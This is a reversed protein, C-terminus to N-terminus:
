RAPQAQAAASRNGAGAVYHYNFRGEPAVDGSLYCDMIDGPKQLNDWWKFDLAFDERSELGLTARPVALMLENGEVNLHVKGVPQWKWGGGNKELSSQRGTVTRNIIFDYGEWGTKADSDADILLLMWNADGSDTIAERTKVYFYVNNADRTVKMTMLDNRGSKNVYHAAGSGFDRQDNDFLHDGFDPRIQQWQAFGGSLDITQPASAKPAPSMGKYRRVNGVLQYYYNDKHLGTVPEIDRSYEQDFQDVFVIPRGPRSFKGATWENWGTVMVFPPNLDLARNWQEQFNLGREVASPSVDKTADHFSRGRANGESMNTVRGDSARLNQAVAVNVQEAKNPDADYSYVQPYTSEWHWENHTNVLSFPWHAKRLTFFENLDRSAENPDCIMLPKGNWQFWLDKYLGPKYLDNYIEQAAEGARTNVMFCIQPTRGGESRVKTWVECLKLYVDRYTVRNTTDFIVTDIGADALLNAHRRLVWPDTSHYYGYLPEAWYYAGPGAWLSSDPKTLADPDQALINTINNPISTGRPAHTLFYFIGVYRDPRSPGTQQADPLIRGLADTAVWNAPEHSTPSQGDREKGSVQAMLVGSACSVAFLTALISSLNRQM